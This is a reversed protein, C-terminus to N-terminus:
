LRWSSLGLHDLIIRQIREPPENPELRAIIHQDPRVLLAAGLGFGGQTSFLVEHKYHVISFDSDAAFMRFSFHKLRISDHAVHFRDIWESKTGVLLTFANFDCLDLTSFKREEV